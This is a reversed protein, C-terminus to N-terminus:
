AGNEEVAKAPEPSGTSEFGDVVQAWVAMVQDLWATKYAEGHPGECDLNAEEMDRKMVKFAARPLRYKVMSSPKGSETVTKVEPYPASALWTAAGEMGLREFRGEYASREGRLRLVPDEQDPPSGNGETAQDLAGVRQELAERCLQSINISDKIPELKAMLSDPISISIRTM